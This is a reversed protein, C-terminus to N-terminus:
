PAVEGDQLHDADASASRVRDVPHDLGAQGADLEDRDVGVGLCQQHAVRIHLDVDARLDRTTEARTRIRLHAACRRALRAIFQFVCQLARVHDEDGGSVL